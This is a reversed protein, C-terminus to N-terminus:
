LRPRPAQQILLEVLPRASSAVTLTEGTTPHNFRLSSAHLLHREEANRPGSQVWEIFEAEPRGYLKDGWVPHGLLAAHARIQHTRGTLTAVRVLSSGPLRALLTFRTRSERGGPAAAQKIRISSAPDAALPVSVYTERGALAGRLVAVYEKAVRGAAFDEGLIRAAQGTKALLIVGSTERDLRHCAHLRSLALERQVVQVLCHNWYKGSPSTPINGSKDVALLVDDEYLVSFRPDIEPEAFPPREYVIKHRTRLAFGPPVRKGNVTVHGAAILSRWEEATHYPFRRELFQVLTEPGHPGSVYQFSLKPM